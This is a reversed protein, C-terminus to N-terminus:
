RGTPDTREDAPLPAGQKVWEVIAAANPYRALVRDTGVNVRTGGPTITRELLLVQPVAARSAPDAWLYRAVGLNFWNRGVIVEDFTSLSKLYAFGSDPSWDTAIGVAVFPLHRAAAQRGLALNMSDVSALFGPYTNGVCHSDSILVAVLERGEPNAESPTYRAPAAGQAQLPTAGFVGLVLLLVAALNARM